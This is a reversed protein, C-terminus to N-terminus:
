YILFAVETDTMARTDQQALLVSLQDMNSLATSVDNDAPSFEDAPLLSGSSGAAQALTSHSAPTSDTHLMRVSFFGVLLLAMCVGALAPRALPGGLWEELRERWTLGQPLQRVARMVNQTFNPRPEVRRAKGLLKSVPDQPSLPEM